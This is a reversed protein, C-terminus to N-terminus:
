AKAPPRILAVRRAIEAMGHRYYLRLAPGNNSDVALTLLEHGRDAAISLALKVLEDGLKQGRAEPALGLYVLETMPQATVPALLLVGLENSDAAPGDTLCFWWNPDFDGTAKHGAIVDDIPRMGRMPPCDLSDIYSAEIARAFRDHSEPSYHVFHLGAPAAFAGRKLRRQLYMLTALPLLGAVELAAAAKGESPDLLVQVLPGNLPGNLPSNLAGNPGPRHGAPLAAIVASACKAVLEAALASRGAPSLLLLVTHGPSMVPLAAAAIRGDLTAIQISLLDIDRLRAIEEFDAISGGDALRESNGLLLGLAPAIEGPGVPRVQTVPVDRPRWLNSLGSM